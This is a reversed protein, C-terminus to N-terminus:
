YGSQLPNAAKQQVKGRGGKKDRVKNKGNDVFQNKFVPSCLKNQGLRHSLFLTSKTTVFVFAKRKPMARGQLGDANEFFPASREYCFLASGPISVRRQLPPRTQFGSIFVLISLSRWSLAHARTIKLFTTLHYTHVCLALM